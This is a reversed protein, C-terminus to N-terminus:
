FNLIFYATMGTFDNCKVDLSSKGDTWTTSVDTVLFLLGM